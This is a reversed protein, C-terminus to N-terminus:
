HRNTAVNCELYVSESSDSPMSPPPADHFLQEDNQGHETQRLRGSSLAGVIVATAPAGIRAVRVGVLKGDAPILHAADVARVAAIRGRQSEDIPLEPRVADREHDRM